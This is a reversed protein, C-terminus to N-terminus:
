CSFASIMLVIPVRHNRESASVFLCEPQTNVQTDKKVTRDEATWIVEPM